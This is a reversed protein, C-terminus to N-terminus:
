KAKEPFKDAYKYLGYYAPLIPIFGFLNMLQFRNLITASFLDIVIILVFIARWTLKNFFLRNYLYGYLGLLGFGSVVMDIITWVAHNGNTPDFVVGVIYILLFLWLYIKFLLM